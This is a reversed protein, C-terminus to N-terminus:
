SYKLVFWTKVAEDYFDICMVSTANRWDVNPGLDDFSKATRHHERVTFGCERKMVWSILIRQGFDNILGAKIKEWEQHTLEIHKTM